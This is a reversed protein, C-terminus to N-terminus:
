NKKLKSFEKEIDIGFRTKYYDKLKQMKVISRFCNKYNLYQLLYYAREPNLKIAININKEAAGCEGRKDFELAGLEAYTKSYDPDVSIAKRYFYIANDIDAYNAIIYDGTMVLAVAYPLPIFSPILNRESIKLDKRKPPSIKQWLLKQSSIYDERNPLRDKSVYRLSLGQPVWVINKFSLPTIFFIERDGSLQEFVKETLAFDEIKTKHEEKYKSIQTDLFYNNAFGGKQAVEVDPRVGKVYHIYWTNTVLTDGDIVIISNKPLYSLVDYGLKDGVNVKSLNTKNFNALFLLPPIIWFVMMVATVFIKKSFIAKLLDQILMLGFPFFLMLIVSSLIYFRESIGYIFTNSLPFAAYSIFAPGTLIFALLFSLFLRKNIKFLKYAGLLSITFAPISISAIIHQLYIKNIILIEFFGRAKVFNGSSFTGYDVRFFLKLLNQINTANDWNMPPNTRAVIPIYIYPLFGSVFLALSVFITKRKLIVKLHKSLIILISPFVLVVTHHNALSLGAIFATVYLFTLKKTQQFRFSFYFLLLAFLVNPIFVEPVESYLWFIGSFSLILAGLMSFPQSLSAKKLFLFYLFVSAVGAFVSILGVKTVVPLALPMRSLVFGIITFLPYGSPHAVGAVYAATVLDGVDGGYVDRTLKHLYVLTIFLFPIFLLLNKKAWSM